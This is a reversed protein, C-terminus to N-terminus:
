SEDQFLEQWKALLDDFDQTRPVHHGYALNQWHLTLQGAYHSINQAGSQQVITLCEGETQAEHFAFGFVHILQSLTARYLLSLGSRKDGSEWLAQVKEPVDEPLSEPSVDLAFRTNLHEPAPTKVGPKNTFFGLGKRYRLFLFVASVAISLWLFFELIKAASGFWTALSSSGDGNRELFEIFYIFWEPLASDGPKEAERKKLRWGSDMVRKHFDEGELIELIQNKAAAPKQLTMKAPTTETLIAANQDPLVVAENEVAFGLRPSLCLFFLTLLVAPASIIKATQSKQRAALHRFRIEIDWAELDIRHSIYLAFGAMTYFPAVLAMAIFSLVQNVFPLLGENMMVWDAAFIPVEQPIMLVVLGILGLVILWELHMCIVTLWTAANASGQHLQRLRNQRKKGTLGELVTVPLDYARMVNFRRWTLWPLCDVKYLKPLAKLVESTNMPVDFLARSAVYIPGREFMPKFWWLLWPAFWPQRYFVLTLMAYVVVSPILWSLFLPKWWARAMVFGLDLAQWPSRKRADIRIRSLDM